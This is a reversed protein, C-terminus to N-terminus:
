RGEELADLHRKFREAKAKLLKVSDLFLDDSKFQGTSEISFIFHDRFRGLKVKNKFEEHRLCERSVTDKMTDKVVAKTQGTTPDEELEIVGRPFCRRFKKADNGLIPEKIEISPLLRYSATAVPSFKAHDAGIGKVCHCRIQIKQGPRLKAILIDPNTPRIRNEGAFIQEQQGQPEFVLDRAYVNSNVYREEPDTSGAKALAKGDRGDQEKTAWRCEIDMSMVVTNYDSPVSESEDYGADDWAAQAAYDDAPPPKRFWRMWRLGEEGGTLPILGLRHAFVEDQILSTNSFIFVDEIALTPVEAILVRRFANAISADVGVLSFAANYPQNAHFNVKLNETFRELNWSDDQAPGYHGPIDNAVTHSVTEANIGVMRRQELQEATLPAWSKDAKPAM